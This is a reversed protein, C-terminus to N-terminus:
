QDPCSDPTPQCEVLEEQTKFYSLVDNYQIIKPFTITLLYRDTPHLNVVQHLIQSNFLYWRHKEYALETVNNTIGIKDDSNFLTFARYDDLVMNLSCGIDKDRHWNYVGNSSFKYLRLAPYFKLPIGSLFPDHKILHHPLNTAMNMYPVWEWKAKPLFDFVKNLITCKNDLKYFFNESNM